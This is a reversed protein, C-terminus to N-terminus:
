GKPAVDWTYAAEVQGVIEGRHNKVLHWENAELKAQERSSLVGLDALVSRVVVGIAHSGGDEMKLAMGWGQPMIGLCYVGAAGGKAVLKDPATQMLTTCLRGTGAIVDPNQRMAASVREAGTAWSGPLQAPRALLAYAWAMNFLPMGWVPVGCGDTGITLAHESLGTVGCVIDRIMQQLPHALDTYDEISWGMQRCVALMGAHKGSCNNHVPGPELGRRYLAIESEKHAPPHVGCKLDDETLGIKELISRVLRVHKEQGSHSACMIALEDNSFGYSELAGSDVVALAQFPKAASRWYARYESSGVAAIVDGWRDVVVLHGRHITDM